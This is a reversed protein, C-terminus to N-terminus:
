RSGGYSKESSTTRLMKSYLFQCLLQSFQLRTFNTKARSAPHLQRSSPFLLFGRAYRQPPPQPNPNTNRFHHHTVLLLSCPREFDVKLFVYYAQVLSCFTPTTLYECPATPSTDNTNQLMPHSPTPPNQETEVCYHSAGCDSLTLGLSWDPRRPWGQWGHVPADRMDPSCPM